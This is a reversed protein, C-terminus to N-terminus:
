KKKTKQETGPPKASPNQPHFLVERLKKRQNQCYRNWFISRRGLVTAWGGKSFFDPSFFILRSCAWVKHNHLQYETAMHVHVLHNPPYTVGNVAGLIWTILLSPRFSLFPIKRKPRALAAAALRYTTSLTSRTSDILWPYSLKNRDFIVGHQSCILTWSRSNELWPLTKEWIHELTHSNKISYTLPLMVSVSYSFGTAVSAICVSNNSSCFLLFFYIILFRADRM